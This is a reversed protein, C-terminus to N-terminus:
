YFERVLDTAGEPAGDPIDAMSGEIGEREEWPVSNEDRYIIGMYEKDGELIKTKAQERNSPAHDTEALDVIADRFYDYTDVDNFTV